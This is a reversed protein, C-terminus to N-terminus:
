TILRQSDEFLIDSQIKQNKKRSAGGPRSNNQACGDFGDRVLYAKRGALGKAIRFAAIM